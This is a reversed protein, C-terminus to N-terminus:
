CNLVLPLVRETATIIIQQQTFVNGAHFKAMVLLLWMVINAGAEAPHICLAHLFVNKCACHQRRVSAIFDFLHILM